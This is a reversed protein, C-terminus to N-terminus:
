FLCVVNEFVSCVVDTPAEGMVRTATEAVCVSLGAHWTGPALRGPPLFLPPRVLFM